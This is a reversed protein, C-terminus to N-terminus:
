TQNAEVTTYGNGGEFKFYMSGTSKLELLIKNNEKDGSWTYFHASTYCTYLDSSILPYLSSGKGVTNLIRISGGTPTHDFKKYVTQVCKPESVKIEINPHTFPSTKTGNSYYTSRTEADVNLLVLHTAKNIESLKNKLADDSTIDTKGWNTSDASHDKTFYEYSTKDKTIGVIFPFANNRDHELYYVTVEICNQDKLDFGNQDKNGYRITGVVCDGTLTHVYKKYGKDPQHDIKHLTIKHQTNGYKYQGTNETKGIDVVVSTKTTTGTVM